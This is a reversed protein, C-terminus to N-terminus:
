VRSFPFTLNGTLREESCEGTKWRGEGGCWPKRFRNERKKEDKKKGKLRRFGTNGAVVARGRAKQVNGSTTACRTRGHACRFDPLTRPEVDGYDARLRYNRSLSDVALRAGCNYGHLEFDRRGNTRHCIRSSISQRKRYKYRTLTGPFLRVISKGVRSRTRVTDNDRFCVCRNTFFRLM